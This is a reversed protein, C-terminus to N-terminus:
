TGVVNLGLFCSLGPGSIGLSLGSCQWAPNLQGTGREGGDWNESRQSIVSFHEWGREAPPSSSEKASSLTRLCVEWFAKAEKRVPMPLLPPQADLDANLADQGKSSAMGPAERLPMPPTLTPWSLHPVKARSTSAANSLGSNLLHQSFPFRLTIKHSVVLLDKAPHHTILFCTIGCLCTLLAATWGGFTHCPTKGLCLAEMLEIFHPRRAPQKELALVPLSFPKSRKQRRGERKVTNPNSDSLLYSTKKERSIGWDWVAGSRLRFTRQSLANLKVTRTKASQAPARHAQGWMLDHPPYSGEMECPVSYTCQCWCYLGQWTVAVHLIM